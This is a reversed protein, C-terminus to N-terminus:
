CFAAKKLHSKKNAGKGKKPSHKPKDQLLILLTDNVM